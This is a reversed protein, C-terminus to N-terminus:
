ALRLLLCWTPSALVHSQYNPLQGHFSSLSKSEERELIKASAILLSTIKAPGLYSKRSWAVVMWVSVLLVDGGVNTKLLFNVVDSILFLHIDGGGSFRDWGEQFMRYRIDFEQFTVRIVNLEKFCHLMIKDRFGM